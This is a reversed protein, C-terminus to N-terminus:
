SARLVKLWHLTIQKPALAEIQIEAERGEAQERWVYVGPESEEQVHGKAPRLFDRADDLSTKEVTAPRTLAEVVYSRLLKPWYVDFLESSAFADSWVVEGGYAVVVGVVHEGKLGSTARNFRRELELAFSEVSVEVTKSQYIKRYSQTPAASGIAAQVTDASIMPASTAVSASGVGPGASTGTGAAGNVTVTESMSAIPPTQGSVAAWVRSQDQEVAAKERVSPHVMTKAAVFKDSGGTWRGHEVCFVDLPLPAAGVPVLRDKGIIRDQKGGSVVEGALLLLPKKGRNVLVLQNVQAGSSIAPQAVGDRNRRLYNGQETVLADGSALADDLTAFESTDLDQSTLIPFVSINEYTVAQGLRWAQEGVKAGAASVNASSGSHIPLCTAAFFFLVTCGLIGFAKRQKTEMKGEEHAQFRKVSREM